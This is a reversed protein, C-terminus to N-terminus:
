YEQAMLLVNKSMAWLKRNVARKIPDSWGRAVSRCACTTISSNSDIFIGVNM